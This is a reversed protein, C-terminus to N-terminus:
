QNKAKRPLLSVRGLEVRGRKDKKVKQLAIQAAVNKTFLRMGLIAQCKHLVKSNVACKM